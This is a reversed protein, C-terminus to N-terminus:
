TAALGREIDEVLDDGDEIGCSFRLMGDGIGRAEREARPVSAHTMLAPHEVLSEVGGLSEALTFYRLKRLFRRAAPLGGVLEATVMGGMGRMQRRALAHQPHSRLGPYAVRRVKQSASLAAAVRAANECHRAMRVGRTRIGRLALYSDVPSPIAGIANQLWALREGRERRRAILAGGILDSHGGLYKTMSHLVVDAGLEIPRQLAPSAFTNDVLLEARAAHAIRAIARLDCLELLPNSPSEALVLATPAARVAARVAALDRFDVYVPQFGYQKRRHDLLRWSGGYLDHGAVIRSGAPLDDLLTALAAMGSSFALGRAGGELRALATELATRTPNATRSYVYGRNRDPSIQAFTSSLYIPPNVAGTAPDPSQGEHVLQTDFRM